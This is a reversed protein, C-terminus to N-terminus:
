RSKVKAHGGGNHLIDELAPLKDISWGPIRNVYTVIFHHETKAENCYEFKVINSNRSVLRALITKTNSKIISDRSTLVYCRGLKLKSLQKLTM